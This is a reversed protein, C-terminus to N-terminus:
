SDLRSFKGTSDEVHLEIAHEGETLYEYGVVTGTSDPETDVNSLVGDIDSEWYATLTESADEADSIIGEFTIKQDSYYVGNAIPTLIEVEPAETPEISVVITDDNRSNEADRVALTIETDGLGLALECVTEGNEDPIVEDCVIDGNVYWITTLQDPTHNADTVSGVFMTPMGELVVDGDNHSVIDAKPAPNTITISKDTRCAIVSILGITTFMRM